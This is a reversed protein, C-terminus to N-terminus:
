VALTVRIVPPVGAARLSAAPGDAANAPELLGSRPLTKEGHYDTRELPEGSGSAATTPM